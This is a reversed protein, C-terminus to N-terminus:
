MLFGWKQFFNIKLFFRYGAFTFSFVFFFRSFVSIRCILSLLSVGADGNISCFRLHRHRLRFQSLNNLKHFALVLPICPNSSQISLSNFISYIFVLSLQLFLYSFSLTQLICRIFRFFSRSTFASNWRSLCQSQGRVVIRGFYERKYYIREYVRIM